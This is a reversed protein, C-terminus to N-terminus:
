QQTRKVKIPTQSASGIELLRIESKSTHPIIPRQKKTTYKPSSLPSLRLLIKSANEENSFTDKKKPKNCQAFCMILITKLLSEWVVVCRGGARGETRRAAPRTFPSKKKLLAQLRVLRACVCVQLLYLLFLHLMIIPPCPNVTINTPNLSLFDVLYQVKQCPSNIQSLGSNM